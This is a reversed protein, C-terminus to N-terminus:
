ISHKVTAEFSQFFDGDFETNGSLISGLFNSPQMKFGPDDDMGEKTKKTEETEKKGKDKKSKGDRASAV